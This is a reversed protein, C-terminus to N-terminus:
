NHKLSTKPEDYQGYEIKEWVRDPEPANFAPSWQNWKRAGAGVYFTATAADMAITHFLFQQPELETGAPLM